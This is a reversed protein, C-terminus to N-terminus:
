NKLAKKIRKLFLRSVSEALSYIDLKNDTIQEMSTVGYDFIGCPIIGDFYSLDTNVNIAFGHMSVWRSLRIGIAAIKEDDVWIGIFPSEKKVANIKHKGLVEVICEQILEVYWSVSKNYNNLNIIPYCVLQGPGHHTVDGGRDIQAINDCKNQLPLVHNRNANKGLTYVHEHELMLVVDNTKKEVISEHIKKQLGLIPGYEQTGLWFSDIKKQNKKTFWACNDLLNTDDFKIDSIDIM